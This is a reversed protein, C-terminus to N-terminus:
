LSEMFAALDGLQAPTLHSTVGHSDGGGCRGDFRDALKGACGNSMFPSRWAVGLLSPVQRMGGTGVDVTMNNTYLAGSHCTACAVKPDTFLARGRAVAPDDAGRLPPLAPIRDMWRSLASVHQATLIPGGMRGTFVQEMLHGLDRMDGDWHFPATQVIGGRLSQTRRGGIKAFRWVRGDEGGEPHCSACALGSGTASHFLAHGSDLRSAEALKITGGRHTVIELRAPERTQVVVRRDRDFAVAIPEGVPQRFELVEPDPMPPQPFMCDSGDLQDASMFALRQGPNGPSLGMNGAQVVALHKGDASYAFDVPLVAFMIQGSTTPGGAADVHTISAGMATKCPGGAYGGNETGLEQNSAEQHVMAIRGDALTRMRWAVGVSAAPLNLGESTMMPRSAAKSGPPRRREIVTGDAASLVLVEASRFRSVYLRDGSVAVDRLDRELLLRRTPEGAAAAMTVLEGGACAVHLLDAQRDHAIGRPAPCVSRRQALTRARGDLTAVAGGGRLVVHVMGKADEVARGPEDGQELPITALLREGQLDAFYVADRDPDAVLATVGDALILLTGGSIPPPAREASVPTGPVSSGTGSSGGGIGPAIPDRVGPADPTGDRDAGPVCAGLHLGAIVTALTLRRTAM